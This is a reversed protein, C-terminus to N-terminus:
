NCPFPLYLGLLQARSLMQKATDRLKREELKWLFEKDDQSAKLDELLMLATLVPMSQVDTLLGEDVLVMVLMASSYLGHLVEVHTDRMISRAADDVRKAVRAITLPDLKRLGTISAVNLKQLLDARAQVGEKLALEMSLFMLHAPLCTQVAEVDRSLLVAQPLPRNLIM